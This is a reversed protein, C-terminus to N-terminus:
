PDDGVEILVEALPDAFIELLHDGPTVEVQFELTGDPGAEEFPDGTTTAERYGSCDPAHVRAIVETGPFEPAAFFIAVRLSAEGPPTRVVVQVEGPFSAEFYVDRTLECLGVVDCIPLAADCAMERRDGIFAQVFDGDGDADSDSDFDLDSDSDADIDGDGDADPLARGGCGAALLALAACFRATHSADPARATVVAITHDAEM